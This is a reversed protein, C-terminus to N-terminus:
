HALGDQNLAVDVWKRTQEDVFAKSSEPMRDYRCLANAISLRSLDVSGFREQSECVLRASVNKWCEDMKQATWGGKDLLLKGCGLIRDIYSGIFYKRDAVFANQSPTIFGVFNDPHITERKQMVPIGDFGKSAFVTEKVIPKYINMEVPEASCIDKFASETVVRISTKIGGVSKIKRPSYGVIHAEKFHGMDHPTRDMLQPFPQEVDPVIVLLDVDSTPKVSYYPGYAISGSLIVGTAQESVMETYHRAVDLREDTLAKIVSAAVSSVQQM